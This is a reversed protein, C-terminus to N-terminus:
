NQHDNDNFCVLFTTKESNDLLPKYSVKQREKRHNQSGKPAFHGMIYSDKM